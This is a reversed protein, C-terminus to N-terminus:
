GLWACAWCLSHVAFVLGYGAWGIVLGQGAWSLVHGYGAWALVSCEWDM